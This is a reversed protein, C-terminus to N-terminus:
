QNMSSLFLVRVDQIIEPKIKIGSYNSNDVKLIHENISSKDDASLGYYSLEDDKLEKELKKKRMILKLLDRRNRLFHENQYEEVRSGRQVHIKRFGYMNLQRIFSSLNFHNFYQRIM